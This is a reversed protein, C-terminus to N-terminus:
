GILGAAGSGISVFTTEAGTFSLALVAAALFLYLRRPQEMYRWLCWVLLLDWAVMFIDDRDFRGFYLMAPSFALMLAVALSGWRGLYRRYLIPIVVLLSGFLAPLIRTTYESVGFLVYFFAAGFIKLPGHLMPDHQYGEGRYLHWSYMGHITEDYHIPRLGLDWFHLGIAVLLLVVYAVVEWWLFAPTAKPEAPLEPAAEELADEVNDQSPYSEEATM